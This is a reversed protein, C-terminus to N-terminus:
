RRSRRATSTPTSSASRPAWHAGAGGGPQHQGDVQRRRGQRGRRRHHEERRAAAPEVPPQPPGVVARRSAARRRRDVGPLKGVATRSRGRSSTAAVPLRADDARHRHGRPRRRRAVSSVMGASVFDVKLAPIRHGRGLVARIKKSPQFPAFGAASTGRAPRALRQAGVSRACGSRATPTTGWRAASSRWTARRQAPERRGLALDARRRGRGRRAAGGGQAPQQDAPPDLARRPRGPDRGGSRLPARRGRLRAGPQGRRHRRRENQLAYARVKNGLGIGRGEQRLYVVVGTGEAAIRELAADLQERCDCKLSGLM